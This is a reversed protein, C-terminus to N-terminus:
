ALQLGRVQSGYIRSAKRIERFPSAPITTYRKALTLEDAPKRARRPFPSGTASRKRPQKGPTMHRSEVMSILTCRLLILGSCPRVDRVLRGAVGTATHSYM